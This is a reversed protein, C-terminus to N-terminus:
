LISQLSFLSWPHLSLMASYVARIMLVPWEDLTWVEPQKARIVSKARFTTQKDWKMSRGSDSPFRGERRWSTKMRASRSRRDKGEEYRARQSSLSSSSISAARGDFDKVSNSVDSELLLLLELSEISPSLSLLFTMSLDVTKQSGQQHQMWTKSSKVWERRKDQIGQSLVLFDISWHNWFSASWFFFSSLIGPVFDSSYSSSSPLFFSYFSKSLFLVNVGYNQAKSVLSNSIRLSCSGREREEDRDRENKRDFKRWYLSRFYGFSKLSERQCVILAFWGLFQSFSLFLSLSVFFLLSGSPILATENKPVNNHTYWVAQLLSYVRSFWSSFHAARKERCLLCKTHFHDVTERTMTLSRMHTDCVRCRFLLFSHVCDPFSFSPYNETNFPSVTIDAPTLFVDCYLYWRRLEQISYSVQPLLPLSLPSQFIGEFRSSPLPAQRQPYFTEFWKNQDRKGRSKLQHTIGQFSYIRYFFSQSSM